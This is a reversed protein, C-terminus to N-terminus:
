APMFVEEIGGGETVECTMFGALRGSGFYYTGVWCAVKRGQDDTRTWQSEEGCYAGRPPNSTNKPVVKLSM